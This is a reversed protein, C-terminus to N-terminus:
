AAPSEGSEEAEQEMLTIQAEVIPFTALVGQSRKRLNKLARKKLDYVAQRSIKMMKAIQRESKGDWFVRRLVFAQRESLLSLLNEVLESVDDSCDTEAYEFVNSTLGMRTVEGMSSLSEKLGVEITRLYSEWDEASWSKSKERLVKDEDSIEIQPTRNKSKSISEM